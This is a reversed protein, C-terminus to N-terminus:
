RALSACPDPVPLVSAIDDPSSARGGLSKYLPWTQKVVRDIDVLQAGARYRVEKNTVGSAREIADERRLATQAEERSTAARMLLNQVTYLQYEPTARCRRLADLHAEERARAQVAERAQAARLAREQSLRRERALAEQAATEVEYSQMQEQTLLEDLYAEPYGHLCSFVWKHAAGFDEQSWGHFYGFQFHDLADSLAQIDACTRQHGAVLFQAQALPSFLLLGLAALWVARM